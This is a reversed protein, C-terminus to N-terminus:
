SMFAYPTKSIFSLPNKIDTGFPPAKNAERRVQSCGGGGLSSCTVVCHSSTYIHSM